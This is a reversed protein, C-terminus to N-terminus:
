QTSKRMFSINSSKVFGFRKLQQFTYNNPISFMILEKQIGEFECTQIFLVFFWRLFTFIRKGILELM